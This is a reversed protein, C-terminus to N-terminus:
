VGALAELESIGALVRLETVGALVELELASIVWLVRVGVVTVDAELELTAVVSLLPLIVELGPGADVTKLELELIISLLPMIVELGTVGVVFTVCVPHSVVVSEFPNGIIM